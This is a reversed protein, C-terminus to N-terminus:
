AAAISMDEWRCRGRQIAFRSRRNRCTEYTLNELSSLSGRKGSGRKNVLARHDLVGNHVTGRYGENWEGAGMLM